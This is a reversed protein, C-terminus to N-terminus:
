SMLSLYSILTMLLQMHSTEESQPHDLWMVAMQELMLARGVAISLGTQYTSSLLTRTSIVQNTNSTTIIGVGQRQYRSHTLNELCILM